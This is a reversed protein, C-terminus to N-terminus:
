QKKKQIVEIQNQRYNLIPRTSGTTAINNSASSAALGATMKRSKGMAIALYILLFM